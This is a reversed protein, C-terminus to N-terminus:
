SSMILLLGYVYDMVYRDQDPSLCAGRRSLFEASIKEIERVSREAEEWRKLQFAAQCLGLYKDHLVQMEEMNGPTEAAVPGSASVSSLESESLEIDWGRAEPTAEGSSLALSGSTSGTDGALARLPAVAVHPPETAVGVGAPPSAEESITLVELDTVLAGRAIGSLIGTLSALTTEGTTQTVRPVGPNTSRLNRAARIVDLKGRTSNRQEQLAQLM